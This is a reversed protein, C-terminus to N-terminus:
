PSRTSRAFSTPPALPEDEDVIFVVRVKRGSRHIEEWLYNRDKPLDIIFRAEGKDKLSQRVVRRMGVEIVRESM